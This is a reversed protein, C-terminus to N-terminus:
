KTACDFCLIKFTSKPKNCSQCLNGKYTDYRLTRTHHKFLKNLYDRSDKLDKIDELTLDKDKEFNPINHYQYSVNYRLFENIEKITKRQNSQSQLSM